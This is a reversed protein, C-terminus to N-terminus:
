VGRTKIIYRKVLIELREMLNSLTNNNTSLREDNKRLNAYM